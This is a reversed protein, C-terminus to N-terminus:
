YYNCVLVRIRGGSAESKDYYAYITYDGSQAESLTIKQYKTSPSKKYCVVSDSLTYKINGIKATTETLENVTGSYAGMSVVGVLSSGNFVFKAPGTVSSALSTSYTQATGDIDISYSTSSSTGSNSSSSATNVVGYEYVDGTVNNLILSTIEGKANQECYLIQSKSLSIGDIRQLYIKKYLVNDYVSDNAVDLINVSSSVAYDGIKMDEYSVKGSISGSSQRTLTAIGDKLVAKAVAGELSSKDASTEYTSTTGDPLVMTVYYGTYEKDNEDTFTKTGAAIVYGITSDSATDTSTVVGAAGGDKGLCITVTDGYNFIGSSSLNNFADVGEIEYETGSITVSTPSDKTPSASEYIGTVKNSYAFVIDLPASYYIIDNTLISSESSKVGDRMITTSSSGGISSLWSSSTVKVPGEMTDSDYTIYDISGSATKKVYLTDGMELGSKVAAYTTQSQNYYVKTSDPIDITVLSGNDYAVVSNSLLSYIFYTEYENNEDDDDPVFAVIDKSNKIFIDGTMGVSDDDFSSGKTYLGASTFVKDSGLSSDQEVTSIIDVDETMTCDHVSLLTGSFSVNGSASTGSAASCQLTNYVLNLVQRRTMETGITGDVNDLMELGQAKSIQGYPYASGFSNDDYGLVRLMITVAEEYTVTNTPRYTSDLYGEVFGASVAAKIYPAYWESYPVDKYPSVKLGLAVSDKESSAAVAIKAMEARSVAADLNMNGNEDGQMINLANLLTIIGEEESVAANASLTPVMALSAIMAITTVLSIIKKKM